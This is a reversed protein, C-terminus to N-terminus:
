AAMAMPGQLLGIASEYGDVGSAAATRPSIGGLAPHQQDLWVSASNGLRQQAATELARVREKSADALPDYLAAAAAQPLYWAFAFGIAANIVTTLIIKDVAEAVGVQMIQWTICAAILGCLGTLVTEAGLEWARSPRRGIEANDLHYVYFGGTVMALLANPSVIKFSDLTPPAQTLGWLILGLYGAVGCVVAVRIYNAVNARQGQGSSAFWSGKNVARRRILDAVMIAAAHPVLTSVTDVFPQSMTQPYVWSMTWLRLQGLGMAALGLVATSVAAVTLSVLKIDAYSSEPRPAHGLKFGLSRLALDIDDNPQAKLRVACGLLIYLKSLNSVIDGRLAENTYYQDSARATRYTAVQNEMSKKQAEILELDKQYSRLLGADLSGTLAEMRYSKQAFVLCCLRAWGHELTQRSRTFDAPEVGRMEPSHLVEGQYSTFDFDAAALRDATARAADPIYAREHAFQRLRTEILMLGPVNPLAGMLMFAIAFPVGANGILKPMTIGLQELNGAGLLSLFVVMAAMSGFYIIFGHSYEQRTALQRPLLQYIFDGSETVSREAFTRQCFVYVLWISVGLCALFLPSMEVNMPLTPEINMPLTPM